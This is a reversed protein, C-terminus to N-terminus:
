FFAQCQQKQRQKRIEKAPESSNLVVSSVCHLCCRSFPWFMLGGMIPLRHRNFNSPSHSKLSKSELHLPIEKEAIRTGKSRRWNITFLFLLQAPWLSLSYPFHFHIDSPTKIARYLVFDFSILSKCCALNILQSKSNSLSLDVFTWLFNAMAM